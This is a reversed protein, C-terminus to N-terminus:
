HDMPKIWSPINPSLVIEKINTYVFSMDLLMIVNLLIKYPQNSDLLVEGSWRYILKPPSRPLPAWDSTVVLPELVIQCHTSVSISSSRPTRMISSCQIEVTTQLVAGLHSQEKTRLLGSVQIWSPRRASSLGELCRNWFLYTEDMSLIQEALYNEEM